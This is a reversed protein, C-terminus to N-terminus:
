NQNDVLVFPNAMPFKVPLTPSWRQRGYEFRDYRILDAEPVQRWSIAPLRTSAECTTM